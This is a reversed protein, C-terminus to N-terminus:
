HTAENLTVFLERKKLMKNVFRALVTPDNRRNGM